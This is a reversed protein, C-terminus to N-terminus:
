ARSRTRSMAPHSIPDIYLQTQDASVRWTVGTGDSSTIQLNQPLAAFSSRTQNTGYTKKQLNGIPEGTRADWIRATKDDLATVVREGTADFTAANVADDHQLTKGIPEGTRADWIRATKDSSAASM